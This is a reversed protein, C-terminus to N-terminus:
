SIWSKKQSNLWMLWNLLKCWWLSLKLHTKGCKMVFTQISASTVARPKWADSPKLPVAEAQNMLWLSQASTAVENELNLFTKLRMFQDAGPKVWLRLVASAKPWWSWGGRNIHTTRTRWWVSPIWVKRKCLWKWLLALPDNGVRGFFHAKAWLAMFDSGRCQCLM